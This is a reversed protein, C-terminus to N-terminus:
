RWFIRAVLNIIFAVFGAVFAFFKWSLDWKEQLRAIQITNTRIELEVKDFRERLWKKDDGNM